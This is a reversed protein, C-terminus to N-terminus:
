DMKVLVCLICFKWFRICGLGGPNPNLQPLSTGLLLILRSVKGLLHELFILKLLFIETPNFITDILQGEKLM